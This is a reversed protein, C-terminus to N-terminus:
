DVELYEIEEEVVEREVDGPNPRAPIKLIPRRGHRREDYKEAAPMFRVAGGEGTVNPIGGHETSMLKAALKAPADYVKNAKLVYEPRAVCGRMFILM